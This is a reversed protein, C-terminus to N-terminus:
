HQGPATGSDSNKTFAVGMLMAGDFFVGDDHWQEFLISSLPMVFWEGCKKGRPESAAILEAFSNTKPLFDRVTELAQERTIRGIEFGAQPLPRIVKGDAGVLNSRVSLALSDVKTHAFTRIITMAAAQGVRRHWEETTETDHLRVSVRISGADDSDAEARAFPLCLHEDLASLVNPHQTQAVGGVPIATLAVAALGVRLSQLRAAVRRLSLLRPPQMKKPVVLKSLRYPAVSTDCRLVSRDEPAGRVYMKGKSM